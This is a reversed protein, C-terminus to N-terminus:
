LALRNETLATAAITTTSQTQHKRGFIYLVFEVRSSIGLKEYMKFLYNSVTHESLVLRRAIERNTLGEAVLGAVQEERKTLLCTGLVNTVRAPKMDVLAQLIVEMQESNVWVQGRYVALICKALTEIPDMRCFVGKAGNRFAQLTLERHIRRVLVVSRLNAHSRRLLEVAELGKHAGDQLDESVVAVDFPHVRCAQDVQAVTRACHIEGLALGSHKLGEKLLECGMPTDEAILIRIPDLRPPCVDRLAHSAQTQPHTMHSHSWRDVAPVFNLRL